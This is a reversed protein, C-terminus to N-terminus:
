HGIQDSQQGAALVDYLQGIAQEDKKWLLIKLLRFKLTKVNKKILVVNLTRYNQTIYSLTNEIANM